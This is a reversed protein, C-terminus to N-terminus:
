QNTTLKVSSGAASLAANICDIVSIANKELFLLAEAAGIEKGHKAISEVQEHYYKAGSGESRNVSIHETTITTVCDPTVYRCIGHVIYFASGQVEYIPAQSPAIQKIM